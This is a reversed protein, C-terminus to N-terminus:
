QWQREKLVIAETTLITAAVSMANELACRTVKHPDIIGAEIMNDPYVYSDGSNYLLQKKLSYLASLFFVEIGNLGGNDELHIAIKELTIGGGEIVGEEIASKAARVADDIRDTREKMEVETKGGVKIVVAKGKLNNIRRTLVEIDYEELKGKTVREELMAVHAEINRDDHPIILTDRYDTTISKIVGLQELSISKQLNEIAKAGTIVELDKIYEKRYHGFGPTKIPLIYLAKSLQNSELLHLVNDSIYETIIVIPQEVTNCHTLVNELNDLSTLKCDLLLVLPENYTTSQKAEDLIFRKSFYSVDYKVGEVFELKDTIDKGETVEVIHSFRFAKDLLDAIVDDSNSAIYAIKRIDDQMLPIARTKLENLLLPLLKDFSNKINIPSVKHDKILELGIRIFEQVLIISSTTGDGAEKGTKAAVEKVLTAGINEVEDELVVYNSVSVGDKTLYPKDHEDKIIVTKGYPGFTVKVTNALKNVGNSIASRADEGLLIKNM